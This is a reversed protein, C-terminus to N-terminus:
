SKEWSVKRSADGKEGMLSRALESKLVEGVTEETLHPKNSLSQCCSGPFLTGLWGWSTVFRCYLCSTKPCFSILRAVHCSDGDLAAPLDVEIGAPAELRLCDLAPM